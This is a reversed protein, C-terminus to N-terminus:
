RFFGRDQSSCIRGRPSFGPLPPQNISAWVPLDDFRSVLEKHVRTYALNWNRWDDGVRNKDARLGFDLSWKWSLQCQQASDLSSFNALLLPVVEKGLSELYGVDLPTESRLSHAINYSAVIRPPSILTLTFAIVIGSYVTGRVFGRDNDRLLGIAFLILCIGLWGMLVAASLRALTLGFGDMYLLLRQSTSIMILFLCVLMGLALSRFRQRNSAVGGLIILVLLALGTVSVLEFFGRRAYAALTLGSISEITERGGFLYPLQLFIFLVFLALLIGMVVTTEIKGLRYRASNTSEPDLPASSISTLLGTGLWAVILAILLHEPMDPGFFQLMSDSAREFSADASSFLAGFLLALPSAILLGRLSSLFAPDRVNGRLDAKGLLAFSGFMAQLPLRLCSSTFHAVSTDHLSIGRLGMTVIVASLLIIALMTLLTVPNLRIILMASAALAVVSWVIVLKLREPQFRLTLSIAVMAFGLLWLTLPLGVREIDFFLLSGLVGLGAGYALTRQAFRASIVFEGAKPLLTM